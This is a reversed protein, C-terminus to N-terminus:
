DRRAMYRFPRTNGYFRRQDPNAHAFVASKASPRPYSVFEDSSDVDCDMLIKARQAFKRSPNNVAFHAL